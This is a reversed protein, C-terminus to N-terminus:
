PVRDTPYGGPRILRARHTFRTSAAVTSIVSTAPQLGVVGDGDSGAGVFTATTEDGDAAAIAGATSPERIARSAGFSPNVPVLQRARIQPLARAAV